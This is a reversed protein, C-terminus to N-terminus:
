AAKGGSTNNVSQAILWADVQEPIYRVSAGIKLYPPGNGRVRWAQLTRVSFDLRAAETKEDHIAKLPSVPLSM